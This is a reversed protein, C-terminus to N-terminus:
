RVAGARQRRPRRIVWEAVALNIVWGMGKAADDLLVSSGLVAKSIGETLAQTGAAMGIAYARIMWARHTRTDGRLIAAVGLALCAIMASAFVLRLVSLLDGTGPKHPYYLTIWLASGAAVMGAAAVMRGARRHWGNRRLRPVFQVAGALAFVLSAAVHVALPAASTAFRPDAPMLDPGGALQVLRLIGSVVPILSLALLGFLAWGWRTGPRTGAPRRQIATTM